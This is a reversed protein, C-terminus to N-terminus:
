DTGRARSHIGVIGNRVGYHWAAKAAWPQTSVFIDGAFACTNDRMEWGPFAESLIRRTEPPEDPGVIVRHPRGDSLSFLVALLVSAIM